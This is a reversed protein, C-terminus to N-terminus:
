SASRAWHFEDGDTVFFIVVNNSKRTHTHTHTRADTHEEGPRTALRVILRENVKERKIQRANKNALTARRGNKPRRRKEIAPLPPRRNSYLFTAYVSALTAESYFGTLFFETLLRISLSVSLSWYCLAPGM